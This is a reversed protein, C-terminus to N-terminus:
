ATATCAAGIPTQSTSGHNPLHTQYYMCTLLPKLLRCLSTGPVLGMMNLRTRAPKNCKDHASPHRSMCRSCPEKIPEHRREDSAGTM